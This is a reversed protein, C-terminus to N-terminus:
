AQFPPTETMWTKFLSIQDATWFPGGLPMQPQSDGTLHDLVNQANAPQSMYAYDNLLIGRPTMCAIDKARFLPLIDTKYSVPSTATAEQCM